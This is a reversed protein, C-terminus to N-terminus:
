TLTELSKKKNFQIFNLLFEKTMINKKQTIYLILSSIVQKM